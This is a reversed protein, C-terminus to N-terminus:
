SLIGYEYAKSVLGATNRAGMKSIMNRRHSEVTGNSIFLKKAIELTTMEEIILQLIEKERRSLSPLVASSKPKKEINTKMMANVIRHDYYNGGKMIKSIAETLEDQGSNKLMYGDAGEKILKKILRVESMTSLILVRVEKFKSKIVKCAEYGNLVPMNLDLLIIDVEQSELFALAEKGDHAEGVIDFTLQGSLMLTLGDLVIQHDDVLLIKISESMNIEIQNASLTSYTSM